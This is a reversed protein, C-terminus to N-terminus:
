FAQCAMNDSLVDTLFTWYTKQLCHFLQETIGAYIGLVTYM